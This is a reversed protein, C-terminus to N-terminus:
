DEWGDIVLRMAYLADQPTKGTGYRVVDGDLDYEVASYSGLGWGVVVHPQEDTARDYFAWMDHRVEVFLDFSRCALEGDRVIQPNLEQLLDIAYTQMRSIREACTEDSFDIMPGYLEDYAHFIVEGCADNLCLSDAIEQTVHRKVADHEAKNVKM